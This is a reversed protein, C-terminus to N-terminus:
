TGVEEHRMRIRLRSRHERRGCRTRRRRWDGPQFQAPEYPANCKPSARSIDEMPEQRSAGLFNAHTEGGIGAFYTQRWRWLRWLNHAQRGRREKSEPQRAVSRKAQVSDQGRTPIRYRKRAGPKALRDARFAWREWREGRFQQCLIRRDDPASAQLHDTRPKVFPYASFPRAVGV